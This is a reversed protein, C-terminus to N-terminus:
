DYLDKQEECYKCEDSDCDSSIHKILDYLNRWADGTTKFSINQIYCKEKEDRFREGIEIEEDYNSIAPLEIRYWDTSEVRTMVKKDSKYEDVFKKIEPYAADNCSVHETSHINDYIINMPKGPKGKWRVLEWEGVPPLAKDGLWEKLKDLKNRHLVNRIAM